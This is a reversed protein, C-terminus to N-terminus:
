QLLKMRSGKVYANDSTWTFGQFHLFLTIHSRRNASKFVIETGNVGVWLLSRQTAITNMQPIFSVPIAVDNNVYFIAPTLADYRNPTLNICPIDM